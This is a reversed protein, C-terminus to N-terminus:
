SSVAEDDGRGCRERDGGVERPGLLGLSVLHRCSYGGFAVDGEHVEEVREGVESAVLGRVPQVGVDGALLYPRVVDGLDDGCGLGPWLLLRQQAVEDDVSEGARIASVGKAGGGGSVCPGCSKTRTTDMSPM